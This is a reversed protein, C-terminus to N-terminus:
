ENQLYNRFLKNRYDKISYDAFANIMENIGDDITFEANFNLIEKIKNFSVRYNRYDVISEDLILNIDDLNKEYIPILDKMQLNLNNSGVNFLNRKNKNDQKLGLIIANVVDRVHVFPRWQQGGFIKGHKEHYLKGTLFNIVLDFRPRNSLGFLTGFRFITVKMDNLDCNNIIEEGKVKTEAYLSLPNLESKEDLLIEPKINSGYVSCSSAFIFHKIGYRKSQNLINETGNINIDIALNANSACAPDGVIGALHIMIDYEKLFEFGNDDRIDKIFIKLNPNNIYKKFSQVGFEFIDIVGVDFNLKLLEDVLISGIYGAGGTIAIKM